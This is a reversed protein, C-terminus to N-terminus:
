IIGKQKKSIQNEVWTSWQEAMAEAIGYATKSRIKGRNSGAGVCFDESFTVKRGDKCIYTRLEPKVIKTARM